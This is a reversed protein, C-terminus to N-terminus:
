VPNSSPFTGTGPQGTILAGIPKGVRFIRHTLLRHFMVDYGRTVLIQCGESEESGCPLPVERKKDDPLLYPFELRFNSDNPRSRWYQYFELYNKQKGILM